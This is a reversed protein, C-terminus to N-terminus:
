TDGVMRDSTDSSFSAQSASIKPGTLIKTPATQTDIAGLHPGDKAAHPRIQAYMEHTKTSKSMAFTRATRPDKELLRDVSYLM